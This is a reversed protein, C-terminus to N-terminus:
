EPLHKGGGMLRDALQLLRRLAKQSPKPNELAFLGAQYAAIGGRRDGAKWMQAGLSMLTEGQKQYDELEGFVDAAQRLYEQARLQEGQSALLGGLNGLAQAERQRDGLRAFTAQAEELAERAKDWRHMIRYTVGLNNLMEAAEPDDGQASFLEQAKGFREVAEEYMGEEFLRLGETKLAQANKTEAM